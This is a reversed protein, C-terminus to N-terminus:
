QDLISARRSAAALLRDVYERPKRCREPCWRVAGGERRLDPERIEGTTRHPSTAAYLGSVFSARSSYHHCSSRELEDILVSLPLPGFQALTVRVESMTEEYVSWRFTARAGPTALKMMPRMARRISDVRSLNHRLLRPSQIVRVRPWAISGVLALGVGLGEGVLRRLVDVDLWRARAASVALVLPFTRTWRAAQLILDFSLSRKVEVAMALAPKVAVIDCIGTVPTPVFDGVAVEPYCDWGEDVLHAVVAAALDQERQPSAATLPSADM